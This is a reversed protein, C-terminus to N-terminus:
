HFSKHHAHNERANEQREGSAEDDIPVVTAPVVISAFSMFFVVLLVFLPSLDATGPLSAPVITLLYAM